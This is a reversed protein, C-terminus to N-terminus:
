LSGGHQSIGGCSIAWAQVPCADRLGHLRHIKIGKRVNEM